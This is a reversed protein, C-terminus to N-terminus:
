KHTHTKQNIQTKLYKISTIWTKPTIIIYEHYQGAAVLSRAASEKAQWNASPEEDRQWINDKIDILTKGMLFGIRYAKTRGTFEYNINPGNNILTGNNNCWNIFKLEQQSCYLIQSNNINKTTHYRFTTHRTNCCQPCYIKYHNKFKELTEARWHKDCNDCKMIPQHPKFVTQTHTNYMIHTFALQNTSNYVPWYEINEFDKIKGNQFGIINRSIRTYDDPTLHGKFYESKYDDDMANFAKIAADRKEVYSMHPQHLVPHLECELCTLGCKNVKRILAMPCLSYKSGCSVCNYQFIFKSLKTLRKGNVLIQWVALKKASYKNNDFELRIGGDECQIKNGRDDTITTINNIIRQREDM